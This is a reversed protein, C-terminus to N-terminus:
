RAESLSFDVRRALLRLLASAEEETVGVEKSIATVYLVERSSVKKWNEDFKQSYERLAKCLPKHPANVDKWDAVQCAKSCYAVISCGGCASFRRNQTSFTELCGLAHCKDSQALNHVYMWATHVYTVFGQRKLNENDLVKRLIEPACHSLDLPTSPTLMSILRYGLLALCPILPDDDTDDQSIQSSAKIADTFMALTEEVHPRWTTFLISDDYSTQEYICRLFKAFEGVEHFQDDITMLRKFQYIYQQPFSPITHILCTFTTGAAVTITKLFLLVSPGEYTHFIKWLMALMQQPPYVFIDTTQQPWLLRRGDKQANKARKRSKDLSLPAFQKVASLKADCFCRALVYGLSEFLQRLNSPTPHVIAHIMWSVVGERSCRCVSMRLDLAQMEEITRPHTLFRLAATFFDSRTVRLTQLVDWSEFVVTCTRYFHACHQPTEPHLSQVFSDLIAALVSPDLPRPNLEHSASM